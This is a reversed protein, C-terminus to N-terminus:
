TISNLAPHSCRTKFTRWAERAGDARLDPVFGFDLYLKIAGVRGTSTALWASQHWDAMRRLAFSLAAKALGKGQFAPRVAVWHIRGADAGYYDRSYWASITGAACGKSDVILFCRRAIAPIDTGFERLFLGPEIKVFPEADRWVDEWLGADHVTMVRMAFGAPLPFDPIDRLHPRVLSVPLNDPTPSAPVPMAAGFLRRVVTVAVKDRRDRTVIGYPSRTVYNLFPEEPWPHDAYCWLTRGCVYPAEMGRWEAEIAAAQADEGLASGMVGPWAVYGFETVLVPKDPYRQHLIELQTKWWGTSVVVDYEAGETKLRGHTGPYANVCVVEDAEYAPHDFWHYGVHVALRSPDLERALRVLADNVAAVEPRHEETENSVSWFIVSPHNRDREIMRTLQRRAVAAKAAICAADEEPRGLWYLPIEAMVLLGLRDCLDLTEPDHPYHALRVFNAGLAKMHELDRRAMAPDRVMGTDPSDEHRNFGALRVQRGNLMLRCGDVAVTRFGVPVTVEDLETGAVLRIVVTYLVPQEPSWCRVGVVQGQFVYPNSAAAGVLTHQQQHVAQGDPDTITLCISSPSGDGAWSVRVDFRGDAECRSAIPGLHVRPRCGLWVRRLIGGFPRWGRLRGPVDEVRRANDVCVAVVNVGRHVRGNLPVEFPLFGDATEGAREGNVYVTARTNCSDFRLMLDITAPDADIVLPKRFWAPGEYSVLEPLIADFAVPVETERWLRDEHGPRHWGLREGEGVPDAQFRWLGSLETMREM